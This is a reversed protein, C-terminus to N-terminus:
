PSTTYDRKLTELADLVNSVVYQPQKSSQAVLVVVARRNLGSKKLANFAASIDVIAKALVEKAIPAQPDQKLTVKMTAM